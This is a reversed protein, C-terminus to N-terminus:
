SVRLGQNGNRILLVIVAVESAVAHQLLLVGHVPYPHAVAGILIGRLLQDVTLLDITAEGKESRDIINRLSREVPLNDAVGVKVIEPLGVAHLSLIRLYFCRGIKNRSPIVVKKVLDELAERAPLMM